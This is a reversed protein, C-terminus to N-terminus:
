IFSVRGGGSRPALLSLGTPKTPWIRPVHIDAVASMYAIDAGYMFDVLTSILVWKLDPKKQGFVVKYSM